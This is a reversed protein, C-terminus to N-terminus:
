TKKPLISTDYNDLEKLLQDRISKNGTIIYQFSLTAIRKAPIMHELVYPDKKYALGLRVLDKM